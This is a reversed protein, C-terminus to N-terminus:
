EVSSSFLNKFLSKYFLSLIEFGFFIIISLFSLFLVVQLNSFDIITNKLIDNPKFILDWTYFHYRMGIFIGASMFIPNIIKILLIFHKKIKVEMLFHLFKQFGLVYFSFGLFIYFFYQPIFFTIIQTDTLGYDTYYRMQTVFRVIKSLVYPSNPLFFFFVVTGFVLLIRILSPKQWIHKRFIILAIILPIFALILDQFMWKLNLLFLIEWTKNNTM